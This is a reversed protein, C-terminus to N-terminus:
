LFINKFKSIRDQNENNPYTVLSEVDLYFFLSFIESNIIPRISNSQLYIKTVNMLGNLQGKEFEMKFSLGLNIERCRSDLLPM